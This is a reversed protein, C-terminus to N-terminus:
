PMHPLHHRAQGHEGNHKSIANNDLRVDYCKDCTAGCCKASTAKKEEMAPWFCSIMNRYTHSHNQTEAQWRNSGDAAM